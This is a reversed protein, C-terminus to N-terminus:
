DFILEEIEQIDPVQGEIKVSGDIILAPLKEIHYQRILNENCSHTITASIKIEAIAEWIYKELLNCVPCDCGVIVFDINNTM